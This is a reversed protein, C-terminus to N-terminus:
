KIVKKTTVVGNSVIRVLYVGSPLDAGLVKETNGAECRTQLSSVVSGPTNFVSIVVDSPASLKMDVIIKGSSVYALSQDNVVNNVAAANLDTL